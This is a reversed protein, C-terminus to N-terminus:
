ANNAQGRQQGKNDKDKKRIEQLVDDVVMLIQGPNKMAKFAHYAQIVKPSGWIILDSQFNFFLDEMDKPFKGKKVFNDDKKTQRLVKMILEMFRKYAEIKKPRHAEIIDRLKARSQGYVVAGVAALITGSTAIIATAVEKDLSLILKITYRVGIFLAICLGLIVLIGIIVVLAQKRNKKM